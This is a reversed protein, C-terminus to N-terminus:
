VMEFYNPVLLVFNYIGHVLIPVVINNTREYLWGMIGGIVVILLTSLIIPLIDGGYNLFHLSGFLLSATTIAPIPTFHERLKGQIAGRFLLEEAPAILVVSLIALVILFIPSTEAIEELVSEPMLDFYLLLQSFGIATALAIVIGGGIHFLDSRSPAEFPVTVKRRRIYIYAVILFGVQGFVTAGGLAFTSDVGYGLVVLSVIFVVGMALSLLLAMITVGIVELIMLSPSVDTESM